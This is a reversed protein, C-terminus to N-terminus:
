DISWEEGMQTEIAGLRAELEALTERIAEFETRIWDKLEDAERAFQNKIEALQWHIEENM